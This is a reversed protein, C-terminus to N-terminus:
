LAVIRYRLSLTAHFLFLKLDLSVKLEMSLSHRGSNSSLCVKCDIQISFISNRAITEPLKLEKSEVGQGNLLVVQGLDM